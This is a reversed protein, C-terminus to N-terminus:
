LPMSPAIVTARVSLTKAKPLAESFEALACPAVVVRAPAGKVTAPPLCIALAGLDVAANPMIYLSWFQVTDTM